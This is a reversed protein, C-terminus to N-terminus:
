RRRGVKYYKPKKLKRIRIKGKGLREALNVYKKATKKKSFCGSLKRGEYVCYRLMRGYYKVHAIKKRSVM